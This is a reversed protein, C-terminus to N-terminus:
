ANGFPRLLEVAKKLPRILAAPANRGILHDSARARMETKRPESKDIAWFAIVGLGFSISPQHAGPGYVIASIRWRRGSSRVIVRIMCTIRIMETRATLLL